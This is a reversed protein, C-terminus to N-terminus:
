SEYQLMARLPDNFFNPVFVLHSNRSLPRVQVSAGIIIGLLYNPSVLAAIAMMVSEVVWMSAFLCIQFYAFHVFGPHLGVLYYVVLSTPLSIFFLFPASSLSNAMVFAAVGYHGNLRERSFM